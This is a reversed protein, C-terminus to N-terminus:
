KVKSERENGEWHFWKLFFLLINNFKKFLLLFLFLSPATGFRASMPSPNQLVFPFPVMSHMLKRVAIPHIETLATQGM